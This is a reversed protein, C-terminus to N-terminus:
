GPLVFDAPLPSEIVLMRGTIPHALTLKAAHLMQRRAGLAVLDEEALERRVAKMYAAGDGKYLKDGLIPHGLLALHVRIQHLRGTKPVCRVLSAEEGADVRTFETVARRGEGAKQRVRIEGGERGLPADVTKTEWTVRGAVAALYEKEVRRELFAEGLARAAEPSRSFLLVGSTERDLRHALHLKRGPLQLKLISTAANRVIKDTPHSLVGAPKDVALLQEDEYLVDLREVGPPPEPTRLYRIVVVDGDKVTTSAKAARGRISVKGDAILRQVAARSYGHLRQALYRDVRWGEHPAQVEFPVKVEVDAPESM